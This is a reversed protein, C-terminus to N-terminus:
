AHKAARVFHEKGYMELLMHRPFIHPDVPYQTRHSTLAALKADLQDEVDITILDPGTHGAVAEALTAENGASTGRAAFKSPADPSLVLCTVNSTALVTASRTHGRSIGLEGFFEGEGMHRLTRHIGEIQEIVEVSGSLILCLSTAPEGQEVIATKPPFWAIRVDDSAFRMTASEEAFLSLALGYSTAPLTRQESSTLWDALHRAISTARRPFHSRLLEIPRGRDALLDVARRTAEGIAIHDPHGYAGDEGFTVVADPDADEIISALEETLCVPDSESVHGDAHDLVRVERVGLAECAARLERERATGLTRRTALEADRIQGAEGRTASVITVHTGGDSWQRFTGGACFVEDDPHAFVGIARSPPGSNMHVVITLRRL